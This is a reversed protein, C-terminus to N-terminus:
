LQGSIVMSVINRPHEPTLHKAKSSSKTHIQSLVTTSFVNIENVCPQCPSGKYQGEISEQPASKNQSLQDAPDANDQFFMTAAQKTRPVM